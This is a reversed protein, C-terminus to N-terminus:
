PHLRHITVCSISVKKHHEKDKQLKTEMWRIYTFLM